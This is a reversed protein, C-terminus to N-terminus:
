FFIGINYNYNTFLNVVKLTEKMKIKLGNKM